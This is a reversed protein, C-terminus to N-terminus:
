IYKEFISKIKGKNVKEGILAINVLNFKFYKKVLNNIELSNVSLIKNEIDKISEVKRDLVIKDGFFSAFADSTELGIKLNGILGDKVKKLEEDSVLNTKLEDIIKSVEDLVLYLKDKNIGARIAFYGHDTYQDSFSSVYYAVGLEERLKMFLRSSFGGSLISDLVILKISNEDYINFTRFGLVFHTQDTRKNKISIVLSKQKDVVKKKNKININEKKSFTRNILASAKKTDFKGSIVVVTKNPVYHINHYERFDKQKFSNVNEKSGTIPWGAPQDGYLTKMFIEFIERKPDDKYMNIEEVIVGKEKNIESDLFIPNLYIDSVIDFIKEFHNSASKAYYGTYEHSTFANYQAGIEDLEKSILFSTPRKTTGKFCMHELFHSLGNQKKTEYKSGTKVLTMVTVTETNTMPYLIFELGNNLKKQIYKMYHINVCFLVM